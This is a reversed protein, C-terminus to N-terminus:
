TGTMDYLIKKNYYIQLTNIQQIVYIISEIKISFCFNKLKIFIDAERIRLPAHIM